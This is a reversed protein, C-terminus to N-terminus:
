AHLSLPRACRKVKLNTEGDLNVTTVYCIQEPLACHLCLLDAPFLEGDQVKLMDGVKVGSWRIQEEKWGGHGAACELRAQAQALLVMFEASYHVVVKTYARFLVAEVASDLLM